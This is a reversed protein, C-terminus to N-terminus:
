VFLVLLGLLAVSISGLITYASHLWIMFPTLFLIVVTVNFTVDSITEITFGVLHM